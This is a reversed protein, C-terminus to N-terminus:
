NADELIMLIGHDQLQQGPVWSMSMTTAHYPNPQSVRSGRRALLALLLNM